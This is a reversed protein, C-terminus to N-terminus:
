DKYVTGGIRLFNFGKSGSPAYRAPREYGICERLQEATDQLEELADLRTEIGELADAIRTLQHIKMFELSESSNMGPYKLFKEKEVLKVNDPGLFNKLDDVMLDNQNLPIPDPQIVGDVVWLPDQNGLITSTGRIRIKPSTGVRSSTNMVMMGAVRGQLMQDISTYVPMMIDSAKVTSVSGVVDSKRLTQYGTVVVEDMTEASEKLIVNINEQGTYAVKYPAMGIFSYIINIKDIDPITFVYNGNSDTTTGICTGEILITVGALPESKTDTVRGRIKTVSTQSQKKIFIIKDEILYTLNHGKLVIDLIEQVSVGERQVSINKIAAVDQNSYMFRYASQKQINEFVNVLTGNKIDINLQAKYQAISFGPLLLFFLFMFLVVDGNKKKPPLFFDNEKM